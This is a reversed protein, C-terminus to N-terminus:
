GGESGRLHGREIGVLNRVCQSLTGMTSGITFARMTSDNIYKMLWQSVTPFGSWIAAGMPVSGSIVFVAAVLLLTAELSRARFARYSSSALYFSSLSFVAASLQAQFSSYVFQYFPNTTHRELVVGSILMFFFFGLLIYSYQYNTRKTTINRVHLRVINLAGIGAAWAVSLTVSRMLYRNAFGNIFSINFFGDLVMIFGACFTLVM